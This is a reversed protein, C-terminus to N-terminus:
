SPDGGLEDLRVSPLARDPEAKLQFKDHLRRLEAMVDLWNEDTSTAHRDLLFEIEDAILGYATRRARKM